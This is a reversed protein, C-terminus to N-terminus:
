SSNWTLFLWDVSMYLGINGLLVAVLIFMKYVTPNLSVTCPKVHIYKNQQKDRLSEEKRFSFFIFLTTLTSALFETFSVVAM